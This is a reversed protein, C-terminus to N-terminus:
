QEYSYIAITKIRAEPTLEIEREVRGDVEYFL